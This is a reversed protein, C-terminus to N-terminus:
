IISSTILPLATLALTCLIIFLTWWENFASCVNAQHITLQISLFLMLLSVYISLHGSDLLAFVVMSISLTSILSISASSRISGGANLLMASISYVVVLLAILALFLWHWLGFGSSLLDISEPSILTFYQLIIHDAGVPPPPIAGGTLWEGWFFLACYVMWIGLLAGTIVSFANRLSWSRMHYSAVPLLFLWLLTYPLLTSVGGIILGITMHRIVSVTEQWVSLILSLVVLISLLLLIGVYFQETRPFHCLAFNMGASLLPWSITISKGDNLGCLHYRKTVHWIGGSVIGAFLWNGWLALGNADDLLMQAIVLSMSLLILLPTTYSFRSLPYM